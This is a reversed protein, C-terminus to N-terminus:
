VPMSVVVDPHIRWGDVRHPSSPPLDTADGERAGSDVWAALINRNAQTMKPANRFEVDHSEAFWPPMQKTIVVTKIARAWPRVSEYSMLSMPAIGSPRHCEQCNEQLIPLVDKNFTVLSSKDSKVSRPTPETGLLTAAALLVFAAFQNQIRM